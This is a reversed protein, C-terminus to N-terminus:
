NRSSRSGGNGGKDFWQAWYMNIKGQLRQCRQTWAKHVRLPGKEIIYRKSIIYIYIYIIPSHYPQANLDCQIHTHSLFLYKKRICWNKVFDITGWGKMLVM